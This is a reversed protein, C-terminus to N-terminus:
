KARLSQAVLAQLEEGSFATVNPMRAGPMFSQAQTVWAARNPPITTWCTQPLSECHTRFWSFRKTGPGVPTPFLKM